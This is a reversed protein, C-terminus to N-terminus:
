QPSIKFVASGWEQNDKAGMVLCYFVIEGHDNMDVDGGFGPFNPNSLINALGLDTMIEDGEGVLKKTGENSTIYIGRKGAMDKARFVVLEQDNVKPAFLEIESIGDSKEAALTTLKGDKSLIIAKRGDEFIATFVVLGSQSISSSNTFGLYPSDSDEDKDKAVVISEYGGNGNPKLLLIEDPNREDWEGAEGIRRKFTMSGSDNLYPKFLYSSKQGFATVGEAIISKLNSGDYKYYSRVNEQNTARFYVKGNTLVQPYTYYAIEENKPELVQTVNETDADLTFIGDTVGDDYQNFAIQGNDNLSPETLLRDQPATYVIKGNTESGKKVWLAQNNDGGFGMLKFSVDGRNNIVPCTNSIFSMEPLNFGMGINARALIEPSKYDPLIAFSPASFILLTLGLFLKM